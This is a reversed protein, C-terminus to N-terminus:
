LSSARKFSLSLRAVLFHLSFPHTHYTTDILSPTVRCLPHSFFLPLTFLPDIPIFPLHSLSLPHYSLSVLFSSFLCVHM